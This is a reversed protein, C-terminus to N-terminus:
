KYRRVCVVRVPISFGMERATLIRHRGDGDFCYYENWKEVRPMKQPDFFQTACSGLVPDSKLEDLPRGSDMAAQVEPIHSALEQFQEKSCSHMNWFGQPNDVDKQSLYVGEIQSPSVTEVVIGEMREKEMAEYGISYDSHYQEYHDGKVIMWGSDWQEVEMGDFSPGSPVGASIGAGVAASGATLAAEAGGSAAATGAIKGSFKPIRDNGIIDEYAEAVDELMEAINGAPESAQRLSEDIEELASDLSAKHPGLTDQLGDATSKVGSSLKQIEEISERIAAAMKKM